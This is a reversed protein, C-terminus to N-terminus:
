ADVQPAEGVGADGVKETEELPLLLAPLLTGPPNAHDIAIFRSHAEHAREALWGHVDSFDSEAVGARAAEALTGPGAAIEAFLHFDHLDGLADQFGTLVDHVGDFAEGYCPALAEVAYRLRKYLIRLVHQEAASAEDLARPQLGFVLSARDAVEAYAFVVLPRRGTPGLEVAETLAAFERRTRKLDLHALERNLRELELSRRGTRLGVLFAVARRGGGDGMDPAMKAFTDIFVDSDRVPGLARTIRRVRSYWRKWEVPAYVPKFLRMAERVRRSAVRMDHVADIDAGIRASEELRFLPSAKAALIAPAAKALPTGPGVGAVVFRENV